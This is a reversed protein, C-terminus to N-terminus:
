ASLVFYCVVFCNLVSCFLDNADVEATPVILPKHEQLLAYFLDVFSLMYFYVEPYFM